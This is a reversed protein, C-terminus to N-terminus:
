FKGNKKLAKITKSESEILDMRLHYQEPKEEDFWTYSLIYKKGIEVNHEHGSIPRIPSFSMEQEGDESYKIPM